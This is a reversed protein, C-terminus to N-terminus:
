NILGVIRELKGLYGLDDMARDAVHWNGHRDKSFDREPDLLRLIDLIYSQCRRYLYKNDKCDQEESARNLWDRVALEQDGKTPPSDSM